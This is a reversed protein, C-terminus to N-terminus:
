NGFTVEYDDGAALELTEVARGTEASVIKVTVPLELDRITVTGCNDSISVVPTGGPAELRSSELLAVDVAAFAVMSRDPRRCTARVNRVIAEPCRRYKQGPVVSLVGHSNATGASWAFDPVDVDVDLGDILLRTGPNYFAIPRAARVAQGENINGGDVWECDLIRVWDDPQPWDAPDMKTEGERFVLQLFQGGCQVGKLNRYTVGGRALNQYVMHGERGKEFDGVRWFELDSLEGTVNYQRVGWKPGAEGWEAKANNYVIRHGSMGAPLELVEASNWGTPFGDGDHTLGGFGGVEFRGEPRLERMWGYAGGELFVPDVDYETTEEPEPEPEPEEPADEFLYADAIVKRVYENNSRQVRDIELLLETVPVLLEVDTRYEEARALIEEHVRHETAEAREVEVLAQHIALAEERSLKGPDLVRETGYGVLAAASLAVAATTKKM